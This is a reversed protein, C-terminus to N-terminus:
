QVYVFLTKLCYWSASLLDPAERELRLMAHEALAELGEIGCRRHYHHFTAYGLYIAGLADALRGM